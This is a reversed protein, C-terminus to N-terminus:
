RDTTTNKHIEAPQSDYTVGLRGIPTCCPLPAKFPLGIQKRNTAQSDYIVELRVAVCKIAMRTLYCTAYEVSNTYETNSFQLNYEHQMNSPPPCLVKHAKDSVLCYWANHGVVPVKPCMTEHTTHGNM